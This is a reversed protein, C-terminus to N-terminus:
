TLSKKKYEHVAKEVSSWSTEYIEGVLECITRHRDPTKDKEKEELEALRESIEIYKEYYIKKFYATLSSKQGGRTYNKDGTLIGVIAKRAIDPIPYNYKLGIALHSRPPLEGDKLLILAGDWYPREIQERLKAFAQELPSNNIM